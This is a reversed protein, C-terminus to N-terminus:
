GATAPQRRLVDSSEFIAYKAVNAAQRAEDLLGAALMEQLDSLVSGAFSLMSAPDTWDVWRNGERLEQETCGYCQREWALQGETTRM